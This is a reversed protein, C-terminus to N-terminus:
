LQRYRLFGGTISSVPVGASLNVQAFAFGFDGGATGSKITGIYNIGVYEAVSCLRQGNPYSSQVHTGARSYGSAAATHNMNERALLIGGGSLSPGLLGYLLDPTPQNYCYATIDFFYWTNPALTFKLATDLTLTNSNVVEQSASKFILVDGSSGGSPTVWEADFDAASAKALV